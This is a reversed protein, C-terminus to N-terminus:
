YHFLDKGNCFSQFRGFICSFKMTQIYWPLTPSRSISSCMHYMVYIINCCAMATNKVTLNQVKQLIYGLM